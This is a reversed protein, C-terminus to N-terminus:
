PRSFCLSAWLTEWAHPSGDPPARLVVADMLYAFGPQVPVTVDGNQDTRYFTTVVQGDPARAFIEVQADGRPAGQYYLTAVFSDAGPQAYPNSRAVFEIEMGTQRDAGSAAGVGVLAKAYRIYSETFRDESLGRALHRSKVDGFGKHTAFADFKDWDTYTLTSPATEHVIVLLGDGPATTALAPVDGMRGQVPTVQGKQILDFRASRKEFYALDTGNFNQGNRFHAVLPAGSQVQFEEPEIWFEHGFGPMATLLTLALAALLPRSIM